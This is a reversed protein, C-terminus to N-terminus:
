SGLEADLVEALRDAVEREEEAVNQTERPDDRYDHLERFGDRHVVLRHTGTRLTRRGGVRRTGVSRPLGGRERGRKV